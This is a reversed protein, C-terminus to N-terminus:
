EPLPLKAVEVDAATLKVTLLTAVVVASATEGFGTMAPWVTVSVAVIVGVGAPAGRPVTSKKL